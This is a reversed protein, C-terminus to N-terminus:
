HMECRECKLVLEFAIKKLEKEYRKYVLLKEFGLWVIGLPEGFHITRQSVVKCSVCKTNCFHM